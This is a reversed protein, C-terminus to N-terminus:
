DASQKQHSSVNLSVRGAEMREYVSVHHSWMIFLMIIYESVHYVASLM